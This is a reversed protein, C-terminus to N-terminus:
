RFHFWALSECVMFIGFVCLLLIYLGSYAGDYTQNFRTQSSFGPPPVRSPASFGPPVAIKARSVGELFPSEYILFMLSVLKASLGVLMLEDVKVQM